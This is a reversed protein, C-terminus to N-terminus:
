TAAELAAIINSAQEWVLALILSVTGVVLSLILAYGAMGQGVVSRISM